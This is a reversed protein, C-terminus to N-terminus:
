FEKRRKRQLFFFGGTVIAGVAILAIVWTMTENNGGAMFPNVAAAAFVGTTKNFTDNNAEAWAALRDRVDTYKWETTDIKACVSPSQLIIAKQSATMGEFGDKADAYWGKCSGDNATHDLHMKESIFEDVVKIDAFAAISEVWEIEIESLYMAGSSSRLGIYKCPRTPELVTSTGKKITGLLFGKANDGYLESTAAYATDKGYVQLIRDAQTAGHWTVTVKKVYGGSTTSIIGSNGSSRLQISSNDGASNGAYVADSADSKGSWDGYSTSAPRGTLALNLEDTTVAGLEVYKSVNVVCEDYVDPNSHSAAKITTTGFTLPTIKGANVTAVAENTSSWDVTKDSANAPLITTSLSEGHGAYLTLESKDLTVSTVDISAGIVTVACTATFSGDKTTATITASGANVGTVVGNTVSAVNVNSTSWTVEKDTADSPVVTAVLTESDGTNIEIESKNLTVGTVPVAARAKYLTLAGGTTSAYCAFGYTTNNRLWKKDSDSSAESRGKNEFEYTSSGTVTWKAYNTVSDLLAGQNKQGKGGAYKNVAANYITWYSTSTVPAIHWVISADPNTITNSVASFSGNEFRNSAITNKLAYTSYTIVYDGESIAGSYKDFTGAFAAAKAEAPEHAANVAFGLGAVAMSCGLALGALLLTKKNM